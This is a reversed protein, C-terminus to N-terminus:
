ASHPSEKFDSLGLSHEHVLNGGTLPLATSRDDNRVILIAEDGDADVFTTDLTSKCTVFSRYVITLQQGWVDDGGKLILSFYQSGLHELDPRVLLAGGVCLLRVDACREFRAFCGILVKVLAM